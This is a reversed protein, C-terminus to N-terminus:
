ERQVKVDKNFVTPPASNVCFSTIAEELDKPFIIRGPVSGHCQPGYPNDATDGSALRARDESPPFSVRQDGPPNGEQVFGSLDLSYTISGALANFAHSRDSNTDRQKLGDIDAAIWLEKVIVGKENEFEVIARLGLSISVSRVVRYDFSSKFQVSLSTVDKPEQPEGEMIGLLDIRRIQKALDLASVNTNLSKIGSDAGYELMLRIQDKSVNSCRPVAAYVMTKFIYDVDAGHEILV